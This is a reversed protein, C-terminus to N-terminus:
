EADGEAEFQIYERKNHWPYLSHLRIMSLGEEPITCSNRKLVQYMYEDHSWSVELNGIGCGPEYMGNKTGYVPHKVDPNEVFSEIGFVIGEVPACGVPFTDGVVAWKM